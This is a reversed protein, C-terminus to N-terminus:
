KNLLSIPSSGAGAYFVDAPSLRTKGRCWDRRVCGDGSRKVLLIVWLWKLRVAGCPTSSKVLSVCVTLCTLLLCRCEARLDVSVLVQGSLVSSGSDSSCADNRKIQTWRCDPWVCLFKQESIVTCCEASGCSWGLAATRLWPCPHRRHSWLISSWFWWLEARMVNAKLVAESIIEVHGWLFLLRLTKGACGFFLLGWILDRIQLM